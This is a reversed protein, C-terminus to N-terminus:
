AVEVDYLRKQVEQLTDRLATVSGFRKIVGPAQGMERFPSLRFVAPNTMEQIGAFRYKNLLALIIERVRPDFDKMFRQEHNLFADAREDRTILPKDFAIHALLDFQDVDAKAMIEGLVEVYISEAELAQLFAERTVPNMWVDLLTTWNPAQHTVKDRTYNLYESLTMQTGTSEVLFTAEEAITVTLSSVKIKEVPVSVPKLEIVVTQTLDAATEVTVRRRRFGPGVVSLRMTGAPLDRFSFHGNQDTLIPGQQENPGILITVSAGVILQNSEADTVTGEVCATRPGELEVAFEEPPRDWEDFLRTADTYDIIRFWEKDTITDIRSGRGIIQKFLIPSSLTKMFVINRCSPVDVGTSLLEATTAVVPTKRDSDQFRELWVKAEGEESIIPVAYDAYGLYAFENQLLRAVLRAHDMDVCFIMTKETPGFRRLLGALHAILTKTRDPLTIEREFQPTRYTDRLDAGEPVYIEVGQRQADQVHLGEKDISTRVKHVKYTALFGDSIGQGLSYTYAPPKWMGQSPDEANLLIEPEESCFYAYTDINESQKPTATMGLQIADPFHEFIEKWKGFGSRHCEDIIILGFFDSPIRKFLPEGDDDSDLAQYLAFYLDRNANFKGGEIIARPDSQGSGFPAFTNYAQDRLVIRDAIFLVPKKLWGSKKIKWAIQLATFTKGTGTAMTLLIRKQNGLMREIVRRIAVEQFYRTEKGCVSKPCLPYLLPNTQKSAPIRYTPKSEAVYKSKTTYSRTRHQEWRQWLEDPAPFATLERSQNLFFDFEIFSHGNSAYAFPVDLIAAYSKAQELGADVAYMESKAELVAIMQGQYRLLYDVRQPERRRSEEGILYIRGSTIAKGKVFYHEREIQNEGWLAAKLKPDILKARTDAENLPSM